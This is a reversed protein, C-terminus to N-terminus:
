SLFRSSEANLIKLLRKGTKFKVIIRPKILHPEGTKPNRAWRAGQGCPKFHGWNLIKICEGKELKESMIELLLNLMKRAEGTQLNSRKAWTKVLENKNM